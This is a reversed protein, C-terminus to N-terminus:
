GMEGLRSHTFSPEPMWPVNFIGAARISSDTARAKCSLLRALTLVCPYVGLKQVSTPCRARVQRNQACQQHKFVTLSRILFVDRHFHNEGTAVRPSRTEPRHIRENQHNPPRM